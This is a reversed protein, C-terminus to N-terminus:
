GDITYFFIRMSSSTTCLVIFWITVKLTVIKNSGIIADDYEIVTLSPLIAFTEATGIYFTTNTHSGRRLIKNHLSSTTHVNHEDTQRCSVNQGADTVRPPVSELFDQYHVSYGLLGLIDFHVGAPYGWSVIECM